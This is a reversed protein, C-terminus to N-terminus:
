HTIKKRFKCQQEDLEIEDHVSNYIIAELLKRSTELLTIPRLSADKKPIGITLSGSRGKPIKVEKLIRNLIQLFIGRSEANMGKYLEFTIGSPGPSSKKVSKAIVVDM